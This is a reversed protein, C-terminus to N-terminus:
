DQDAICCSDVCVCRLRVYALLYRIDPKSRTLIEHLTISPDLPHPCLNYAHTAHLVAPGWFRKSLRAHLLMARASNMITLHGREALSNQTSSYPVTSRWEIGNQDLFAMFSKDTFENANDGYLMKIKRETRNELYLKVRRFADLAQNKRHLLFTFLARSKRECFSIYYREGDLSRCPLPGFEDMTVCENLRWDKFKAKLPYPAEKAKAM